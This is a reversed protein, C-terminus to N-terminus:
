IVNTKAGTHGIRFFLPPRLACLSRLGAAGEQEVTTATLLIMKTLILLGAARTLEPGCV